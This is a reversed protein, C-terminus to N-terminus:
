YSQVTKRNEPIEKLQANYNRLNLLAGCPM